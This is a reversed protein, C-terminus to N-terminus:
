GNQLDARISARSAIVIDGTIEVGHRHREDRGVELFKVVVLQDPELISRRIYAGVNRNEVAYNPSLRYVVLIWHKKARAHSAGKVVTLPLHSLPPARFLVAM